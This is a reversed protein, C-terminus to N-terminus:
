KGAPLSETMLELFRRLTKKEHESLSALHAHWQASMGAREDFFTTLAKDGLKTFAATVENKRGPDAHKTIIRKAVLRNMVQSVAGNTIGLRKALLTANAAPERRIALLVHLESPHLRLGGLRFVYRKELFVLRNTVREWLALIDDAAQDM